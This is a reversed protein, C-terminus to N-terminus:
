VRAAVPAPSGNLNGIWSLSFSNSSKSMSLPLSSKLQEVKEARLACIRKVGEGDVFAKCFADKNGDFNYYAEEIEQYEEYTPTFGTRDIFESIMM